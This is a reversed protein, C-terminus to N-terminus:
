RAARRRLALARCRQLCERVPSCKPLVSSGVMIAGILATAIQDLDGLGAMTGAAGAAAACASLADIRAHWAGATLVGAALDDGAIENAAASLRRATYERVAIILLASLLVWNQANGPTGSAFLTQASVPTDAFGQVLLAVGAFIPLTMCLAAPIRPAWVGPVAMLQRARPQISIFLLADVILDVLTHTGDAVISRSGTFLGTALQIAMLLASAIVGLRAAHLPARENKPATPLM